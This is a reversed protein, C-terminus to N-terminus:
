LTTFKIEGDIVGVRSNVYDNNAAFSLPGFTFKVGAYIKGKCEVYSDQAGSLRAHDLDELEQAIQGRQDTLSQYANRTQDVIVLQADALKGMNKLAEFRNLVQVTKTIDSDIQKLREQMEEREREKSVSQASMTINTALNNPTGIGGKVLLKGAIVTSGGMIQGRKGAIEVDGDCEINTHMVTDAFVTGTARVTCNQLFRSRINGEATITARNMGNVGDGIIIDKKAYLHAAGVTGKVTISGNNSTVKFGDAIHGGIQIDGAFNIDGTANDIDGRIKLVEQVSITGKYYVANGAVKALLLTGDETLDTNEGKPSIPEKGWLGPIEKGLVDVGSDGQTPAVIEVLEQGQEVNNTFGIDKYDVSGDESIKPKLSRDIRIKYRLEGDKGVEPRTGVAIIVKNNYPPDVVMRTLIDDKIGTTIGKSALADRLEAMTPDVTHSGTRELLMEAEHNERALTITIKAPTPKSEAIEPIQANSQM